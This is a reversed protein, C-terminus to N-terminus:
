QPRSLGLNKLLARGLAKGDLPASPTTLEELKKRHAEKKQNAADQMKAMQKQSMEQYILAESQALAIRGKQAAILNLYKEVEPHGAAGPLGRVYDCLKDLEGFLAKM